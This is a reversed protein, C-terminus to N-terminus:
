WVETLDLIFGPLVNEGSLSNPNELIEVERDQRYIEVKRNKTDILWGLRAGNSQYEKMKKQLESITDNKSRLEVVFDPCLPAFTEQQETTLADWREQKVWAADPSRSSGNPLHFGSSSDFTKGLKTQYNWSWLQGTISSNRNGTGSGTPAMIILEGTATRELQLDRNVLALEVFQEHTIKLNIEKPINVAITQFSNTIVM